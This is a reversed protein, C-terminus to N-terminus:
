QNRYRHIAAGIAAVVEADEPEGGTGYGPRVPGLEPEPTYSHLLKSTVGIIWVLLALFLFVISMGILMLKSGALLSETLSSEM